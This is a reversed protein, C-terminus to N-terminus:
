AAEMRSPGVKEGRAYSFMAEADELRWARLILRKTELTRM